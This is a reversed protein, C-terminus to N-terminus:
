EFRGKSIGRMYIHGERFIEYYRELDAKLSEAEDLAQQEEMVDTNTDILAALMAETPKKDSKSVEGLYVAAKVGKTGAKRMRADLDANKLEVSVMIQAHLFKAALREAEDLSVGSAYAEQITIELEACLQKFTM